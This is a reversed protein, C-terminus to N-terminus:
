AAQAFSRSEERQAFLELDSVTLRLGHFLTLGAGHQLTSDESMDGFGRLAMDREALEFGDDIEVLLQLREMTEPDCERDGQMMFFYGTGGARAVRGRLQHLQSTGYREVDLVGLTKLSPLTVGIEVVTTSCLLRYKQERMGTIVSQKEDESMGGHLCAVAGPFYKEWLKAAHIVSKKIDPSEEDLSVQPYILAAQWGAAIIKQIHALLRSREECPVLRSIVQRVVPRESLTSVDMAGHTALAMTRPICTATAELFNTKVGKIAERQGRSFKHQEDAVLIDPVWQQRQLAKIMATTGVILPNDALHETTVRIGATIGIAPCPVAGQGFFEGIERLIQKVLLSNPVLIGVQAGNARAALLPLLYTLTKGTGVDGSLLRNMPYPSRLDAMIESVARRQDSTPPFPLAALLDTLHKDKVELASAPVPRRVKDQRAQDVILFAALRRIVAMGWEAEQAHRPAHIARLTQEFSWRVGARSLVEDERDFRGFNALLFKTTPALYHQLAFRTKEYVTDESCVGKKGRYRPMVKGVWHPPIWKPSQIILAQEWQGLVGELVVKHGRKLKRWLHGDGFVTVTARRCGDSVRFKYRAIPKGPLTQVDSELTVAFLKRAGDIQGFDHAVRTYDEHRVPIWLLVQELARVGAAKMRGLDFTEPLSDRESM